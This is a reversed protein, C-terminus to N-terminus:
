VHLADFPPLTFFALPRDHQHQRGTVPHQEWKGQSPAGGHVRWPGHRSRGHVDAAPGYVGQPRDDQGAVRPAHGHFPGIPLSPFFLARHAPNSSVCCMGMCTVKVWVM